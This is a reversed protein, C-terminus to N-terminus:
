EAPKVIDQSVIAESVSSNYAKFCGLIDGTFNSIANTGEAVSFLSKYFTYMGIDLNQLEVRVLDGTELDEDNNEDKDFFLIEDNEERDYHEDDFLYISRMVKDNISLIAYYYNDKYLPDQFTIAPTYYSKNGAKIEYIYVRDIYVVEPITAFAEHADEEIQIELHYTCYVEGIMDSMYLGPQTPIEKLIETKGNSSTLRIVANSIREYPSNDQFAQSKTLLVYCPSGETIYADVVNKPEAKRLDLIVVEECSTIILTFLLIITIKYISKM